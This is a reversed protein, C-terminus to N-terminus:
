IQRSILGENNIATLALIGAEPQMGIFIPIPHFHNCVDVRTITYTYAYPLMIMQSWILGEVLRYRVPDRKPPVLAHRFEVEQQLHSFGHQRWKYQALMWYLSKLFRYGLFCGFTIGDGYGSKRVSIGFVMVKTARILSSTKDTDDHYIMREDSPMSPLKWQLCWRYGINIM